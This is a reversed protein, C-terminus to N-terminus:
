RVESGGAVGVLTHLLRQCRKGEQLHAKPSWIRETVNHPLDKTKGSLFKARLNQKTSKKKKPPPPLNVEKIQTEAAKEPFQSLFFVQM